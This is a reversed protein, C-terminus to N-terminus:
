TEGETGAAATAANMKPKKTGPQQPLLVIATIVILVKNSRARLVGAPPARATGEKEKRGKPASLPSKPCRPEVCSRGRRTSAATVPTLM